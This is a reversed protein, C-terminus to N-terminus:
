GGDKLVCFYYKIKNFEEETGTFVSRVFDKSVLNARDSLYFLTTVSFVASLYFSVGCCVVVYLLVLDSKAEGLLQNFSDYSFISKGLALFAMVFVAAVFFMLLLLIIRALIKM